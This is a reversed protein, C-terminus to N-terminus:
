YRITIPITKKEVGYLKVAAKLFSPPGVIGMVNNSFGYGEKPLGIASTNMKNDENEDHLIAVAYQGAPLEGTEFIARGERLPLRGKFIAMSPLRPYGKADSFVSCLVVGKNNRAGTVEIQLVGRKVQSLAPVSTSLAMLYIIVARRM